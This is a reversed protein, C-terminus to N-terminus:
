FYVGNFLRLSSSADFSITVIGDLTALLLLIITWRLRNQIRHFSFLLAGLAAAPVLLMLIMAIGHTAIYDQSPSGHSWGASCFLHLFAQHFISKLIAKPFQILSLVPASGLWLTNAFPLTVVSVTYYIAAAIFIWASWLNTPRLATEKTESNPAIYPNQTM